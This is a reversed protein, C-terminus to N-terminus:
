NVGFIRSIWTRNNVERSVAHVYISCSTQYTSAARFKYPECFIAEENFMPIMIILGFGEM